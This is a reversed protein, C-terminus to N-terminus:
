GVLSLGPEDEPLGLSRDDAADQFCEYFIFELLTTVLRDVCWVNALDVQELDRSVVRIVLVAPACGDHHLLIFLVQEFWHVAGHM